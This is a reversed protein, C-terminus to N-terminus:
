STRPSSVPGAPYTPVITPALSLVNFPSDTRLLTSYEVAFTISASWEPTTRWYESHGLLDRRWVERVSRLTPGAVVSVVRNEKPNLSLVAFLRARAALNINASGDTVFACDGRVFSLRRLIGHPQNYRYTGRRTAAAARAREQVTARLHHQSLSVGLSPCPAFAVVRRNARSHLRM